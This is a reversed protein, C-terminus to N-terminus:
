LAGKNYQQMFAMAQEMPYGIFVPGTFIMQASNGGVTPIQPTQIFTPQTQIVPPQEAEEAKQGHDVPCIGAPREQQQVRKPGSPAEQGHGFPCKGTPREEQEIAQPSEQILPDELSGQGHGFPCKGAPKPIHEASVPAPPPSVPRQKPPEDFIPVRIGWPRSPSEGVRVEKLPRDFRSERDDEEVDEEERNEILDEEIGVGDASVAKAWNEVRENSTRELEMDEDQEHLDSPLMPQHTQGLGQIMSVLNGYKADLKRIDNENRQYRKVCVEHSRPIEHKHTEFYRAVEEPSHQDLYRIPCKAASGTASPPPSSMTEAYMAACIPDASQHPTPDKADSPTLPRGSVMTSPPKTPRAFPCLLSSKKGPVTFDQELVTSLSTRPASLRVNSSAGSISTSGTTGGFESLLQAAKRGDRIAVATQLKSARQRRQPLPVFGAPDPTSVQLDPPLQLKALTSSIEPDSPAYKDALLQYQSHAYNLKHELIIKRDSLLQVEDALLNFNEVLTKALEEYDCLPM